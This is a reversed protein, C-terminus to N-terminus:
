DCSGTFVKDLNTRVKGMDFLNIVGDDYRIDRRCEAQDAAKDLKNRVYSM